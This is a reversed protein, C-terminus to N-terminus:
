EGDHYEALMWETFRKDGYKSVVGRRVLVRLLSTVRLATAKLSAQDNPDFGKSALLDAALAVAKTPEGSHKRLMDLLLRSFEGGSFYGSSRPPRKPAIADPDIRPAFLKITADLHSLQSRLGRITKEMERITGSIEARKAKLGYLVVPEGM